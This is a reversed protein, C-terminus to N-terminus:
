KKFYAAYPKLLALLRRPEIAKLSVVNTFSRLRLSAM